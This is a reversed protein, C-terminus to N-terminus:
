RRKSPSRTSKTQALETTDDKFRQDTYGMVVAEYGFDVVRFQDRVVENVRALILEGGDEFVAIRSEKPGLFGLYTFPIQPPRPITPAVPGQVRPEQPQRITPPPPTPAIKVPAPTPRPPQPPTYYAFLNRGNVDFGEVGAALRDMRVVPPDGARFPDEGVTSSFNVSPDGGRNVWLVITAIVALTGILVYERGSLKAKM